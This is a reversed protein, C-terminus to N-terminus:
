ASSIMTVHCWDFVRLEPIRGGVEQEVMDAAVVDDSAKTVKVRPLEVFAISKRTGEAGGM